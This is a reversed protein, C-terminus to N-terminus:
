LTDGEQEEGYEDGMLNGLLMDHAFTSDGDVMGDIAAPTLWRNDVGMLDEVGDVGRVGLGFNRSRGRRRAIFEAVLSNYRADDNEDNDALMALPDVADAGGADRDRLLEALGSDAEQGASLASSPLAPSFPEFVVGYRRTDDGSAARSPESTNQLADRSVSDRWSSRSRRLTPEPSDRMASRLRDLEVIVDTRRRTRARHDAELGRTSGTNDDGDDDNEDERQRIRPMPFEPPTEIPRSRRARQLHPPRRPRPAIPRSATYENLWAQSPSRPPSIADATEADGALHAAGGGVADHFNVMEWTSRTASPPTPSRLISNIRRMAAGDAAAVTDIGLPPSIARRRASPSHARSTASSRTVLPARPARSTSSTEPVADDLLSTWLPGTQATRTAPFPSRTVRSSLRRIRNVPEPPYADPETTTDLTVRPGSSTSRGIHEWLVSQVLTTFCAQAAKSEPDLRRIFTALRLDTDSGSKGFIDEIVKDYLKVTKDFLVREYKERGWRGM